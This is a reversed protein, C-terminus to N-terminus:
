RMKKLKAIEKELEKIREVYDPLNSLCAEIRKAKRHERAPYGSVTTHAPISKTVGGQAGVTVFDGISIHGVLGAQGALTVQKGIKTSGGIGVQAVLISNEGIEVSHGVHVLNDIKTGRGIRTTGLAARDITCNAGIEVEDEIIVNGIQPIKHYKGSDFAFGFGDSGIVVGSHIIVSKGIVCDHYITVRPYLYVEEALQSKQGLFCGAQITCNDNIKVQDEIVCYPGIYVNQGLKVQKGIVATPHVGAPYKRKEPYFLKVVRAFAYYPNPHFISPIKLNNEDAPPLIVAAAQTSELYQKYKSSALFSIQGTKAEQLGAVGEIEIDGKGNLKGGIREAIEALKM